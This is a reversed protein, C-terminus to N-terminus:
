DKKAKAERAERWAGRLRSFNLAFEQAGLATGSVEEEWSASLVGYSLGVVGLGFFLMSTSVVFVNPIEFIGQTIVFYAAFFTAVGLFTPIGSFLAMRTIMRKGVADPIRTEELSKPRNSARSASRRSAKDEPSGRRPEAKPKHAQTAEKKKRGKSPEFPLREQEDSLSKPDAM